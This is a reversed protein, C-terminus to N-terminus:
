VVDRLTVDGCKMFVELSLSVVVEKPLRHQHRLRTASCPHTLQFPSSSNM